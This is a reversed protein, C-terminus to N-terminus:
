FSQHVVMLQLALAVDDVSVSIRRQASLGGHRKLLEFLRSIAMEEESAPWPPKVVSIRLLANCWLSAM